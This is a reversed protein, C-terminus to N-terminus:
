AIPPRKRLIYIVWPAITTECIWTYPEGEKGLPRYTALLDLGAHDYVERYAADDWLIDEVPTRDEVDTGVILVRDGNMANRNEPFAQTTFSAWEHTYIEPSSVVNVITGGAHILRGLERLLIVKTQETAINDFPFAALVLDISDSPFEALGEPGLLRYDGRSDRARALKVMAESIDVGIVDFGLTALFRTSRGAGCGFDLASNGASHRRIIEPLDRFAVYYTGAFELKAYSEARRADEYTNRFPKVRDLIAICRCNMLVM